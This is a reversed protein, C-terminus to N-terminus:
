NEGQKTLFYKHWFLRNSNAILNCKKCLTILNDKKCNQKNYDIHHIHLVQNYIILHKEETMGCNQCIYNDRIKVEKKLSKNFEQTYPESSKGDKYNPNNIGLKSLRYKEKAFESRIKGKNGNSINNIHEITLKKGLKAIKMKNRTEKTIIKNKNYEMLAQICKESPKKGLLFYHCKNKNWPISGKIFQGKSNKNIM